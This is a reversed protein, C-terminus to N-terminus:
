SIYHTNSFAYVGTNPYHKEITKSLNMGNVQIDDFDGPPMCGVRYPGIYNYIYDDPEGYHIGPRTVCMLRPITLDQVSILTPTRPALSGDSSVLIPLSRYASRGSIVTGVDCACDVAVAVSVSVSVAM